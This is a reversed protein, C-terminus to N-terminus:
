SAPVFRQLILAVLFLAVFPLAPNAPTPCVSVLDVLVIGALLGAVARVVTRQPVWFALRLCRLVWVMLIACCVFARILYDGPNAVLALVVPGALLVCPWRQLPGRTSEQRALYTVGATYCGLAISSWAALGTIGGVTASAAVLVLLLRCSGMLLPSFAFIKHIADYIVINGALLVTLVAPVKGLSALGISGLFLWILGWQWVAATSIKGSPIPRSRRHQADFEADFADNLYMGGVYLGTAGLCLVTFRGWDGGGALIWGALCNSWVTPLNSVRGLILLTRLRGARPLLTHM